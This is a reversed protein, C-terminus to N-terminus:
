PVASGGRRRFQDSPVIDPQTQCCALFRAHARVLLPGISSPAVRLHMAIEKYSRGEHYLLLLQQDRPGLGQLLRRVAAIRQARDLQEDPSSGSEDSSQHHPLTQTRGRRRQARHHDIALRGAVTTLWEAPERPQEKLLRVFAEQVVDEAADADRLRRRISRVLRPYWTGFLSDIGSM